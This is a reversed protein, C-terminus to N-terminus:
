APATSATRSPVTGSPGAMTLDGSCAWAFPSQHPTPTWEGQQALAHPPPTPPRGVALWTRVMHHPAGGRVGQGFVLWNSRGTVQPDRITAALLTTYSQWLAGDRQPNQPQEFGFVLEAVGWHVLDDSLTVAFGLNTEFVALWRRLHANFTVHAGAAYSHVRTPRGIVVEGHGRLAGTWRGGDYKRYAGPDAAAAVPARAM